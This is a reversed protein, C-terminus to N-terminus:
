HVQLFNQQDVYETQDKHLLTEQHYHLYTPLTQIEM